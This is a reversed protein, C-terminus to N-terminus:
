GRRLTLVPCSAHRVLHQATSGFLLRGAAGRGAVGVVIVDAAREAAVRLIELPATGAVVVPEVSCYTAVEAPVLDHLRTLRQAETDALVASLAQGTYESADPPLKPPPEVVHLLTLRADAEQALSLALAVADLSCESFDTACVIQRFVVPAAPVADPLRSPVTLVPCTARRLVAEAVSGLLVREFGSRGHTGMVLLDARLTRSRELIEASTAGQIVEYEMPVSSGAEQEAFTRLSATLAERESPSIELAPLLLTGPGTDVGATIARVHLLTITSVYWRALAVAHDLAHRSPDSFDVPCLIRDIRIM